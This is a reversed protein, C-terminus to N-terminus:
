RFIKALYNKDAIFADVATARQIFYSRFQYRTLCTAGSKNPFTRSGPLSISAWTSVDGTQMVLSHGICSQTETWMGTNSSRTWGSSYGRGDLSQPYFHITSLTETFFIGTLIDQGRKRGLGQSPRCMKAAMFPPLILEQSSLGITPLGAGIWTSLRASSTWVNTFFNGTRGTVKSMQTRTRNGRISRPLLSRTLCPPNSCHKFIWYLWYRNRPLSWPGM